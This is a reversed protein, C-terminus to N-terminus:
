PVVDLTHDLMQIPAMSPLHLLLPSPPQSTLVGATQFYVNEVFLLKNKLNSRHDTNKKEKKEKSRFNRMILTVFVCFAVSLHIGSLWNQTPLGWCRSETLSEFTYTSKPWFFIVEDVICGNWSHAGRYLTTIRSPQELTNFSSYIGFKNNMENLKSKRKKCLFLHANCTKLVFSSV